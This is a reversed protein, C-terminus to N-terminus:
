EYNCKLKEAKHNCSPQGEWPCHFLGDPGTQVHKYLPHDRASEGESSQRRANFPPSLAFDDGIAGMRSLDEPIMQPGFKRHTRFLDEAHSAPLLLPSSETVVYRPLHDQSSSSEHTETPSAVLPPSFTDDLLEPSSRSSSSWSQPPSNSALSPEFDMNVQTCTPDVHQVMSPAMDTTYPLGDPTMGIIGAAYLPSVSLTTDPEAMLYPVGAMRANEHYALTTSVDYSTIPTAGPSMSSRRSPRSKTSSARATRRKQSGSSIRSTTRRMPEPSAVAESAVTWKGQFDELIESHDKRTNMHSYALSFDEHDAHVDGHDSYELFNQQGEATADVWSSNLDAPATQSFCLM